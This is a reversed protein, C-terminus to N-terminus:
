KNNHSTQAVNAASKNLNNTNLDGYFGELFVIDAINTCKLSLFQFVFSKFHILKQWIWQIVGGGGFFFWSHNNANQATSSSQQGFAWWYDVCNRRTVHEKM